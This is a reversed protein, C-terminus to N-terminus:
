KTEKQHRNLPILWDRSKEETPKVHGGWASPNTAFDRFADHDIAIHGSTQLAEHLREQRYLWLAVM